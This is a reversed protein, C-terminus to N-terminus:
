RTAKTNYQLLLKTQKLTKQKKEWTFNTQFIVNLTQHMNIGSLIKLFRDFQIKNVYNPGQTM